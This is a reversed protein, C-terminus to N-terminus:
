HEEVIRAHALEMGPLAVDEAFARESEPGQWPHRRQIPAVEGAVVHHNGIRQLARDNGFAFGIQHGIVEVGAFERVGAARTGQEQPPQRQLIPESSGRVISLVDM